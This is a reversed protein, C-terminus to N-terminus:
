NHILQEPGSRVAGPHTPNPRVPGRRAPGDRTAASSRVKEPLRATVHRQKGPDTKDILVRRCDQTTQRGAPAATVRESDREMTGEHASDPRPRRPRTPDAPADRRRRSLLHGLCWRSWTVLSARVLRCLLNRAPRTPAAVPSARRM